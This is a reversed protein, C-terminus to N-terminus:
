QRHKIELIKVEGVLQNIKEVRIKGDLEGYLTKGVTKALPMVDESRSIIIIPDAIVSIQESSLTTQEASIEDLRQTVM